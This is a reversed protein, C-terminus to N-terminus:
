SNREEDREWKLNQLTMLWHSNAEEFIKSDITKLDTKLAEYSEDTFETEFFSDPKLKSLQDSFLQVKVVSQAFRKLDTNIFVEEFENDHNLYVLEQNHQNIAIPDGSGNFGITVYKDFALNHLNWKENVTKLEESKLYDFNFDQFESPMGTIFLFDHAASGLKFRNHKPQIARLHQEGIAKWKDIFSQSM